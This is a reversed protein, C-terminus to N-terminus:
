TGRTRAKTSRTGGSVVPQYALDYTQRQWYVDLWAPRPAHPAHYVWQLSLEEPLQEASFGTRGSDARYQPWEDPRTTQPLLCVALAVVSRLANRMAQGKGYSALAELM